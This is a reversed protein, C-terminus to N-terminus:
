PSWEVRGTQTANFTRNAPCSGLVVPDRYYVLYWRSEGPHIVDGQAASTASVGIDGADVDPVSISGNVAQKIYLRRIVSGGLCRVGQGFAVGSPAAANGQMVISLAGPGQGSTSFVLSDMSLYGIGSALLSAGGTASSNDCGKGAGAPPNSCPCAIVGASGPDCISTFGSAALDHVFIDQQGNTDGLVLNTAESGFAVYRGNDSICVSPSNHEDVGSRHNGQTAASNVSVRRTVGLLMDRVFVDTCDNTDSPVLNTAYSVFAAYRGDASLQGWESDENGQAGGGDASVLATVGSQMDHLYYQLYGNAGGPILNTAYSGFLVFQGNASIRSDGGGGDAELGNSDVSARATVGTQLDHVFVDYGGNTDGPVLNTARSSFVVFRGDGSMRADGSLDNGQVGNSDVSVRITAGTQCDHVFADWTNNTDGAVLNSADSYFCVFRGDASISPYYSRENSQNGASDLSARTTTGTLRDRVFIDTTGNTDGAVLNSADSMYAVFRGDGSIVPAVGGLNAQVGNSDVSVRETTGNLRDRVFVDAIGNTDGPVLNSADSHFAIFRGDSSSAPWASVGNPQTGMTTISVRTTAQGAAMGALISISCALWSVENWIKMDM